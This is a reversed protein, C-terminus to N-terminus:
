KNKDNSLCTWYIKHIRGKTSCDYGNPRYKPSSPPKKMDEESGGTGFFVMGSYDGSSYAYCGKTNYDGVFDTGGGGQKLGLRNGADKCAQQSYPECDGKLFFTSEHLGDNRLLFVDAWYFWIDLVVFWKWLLIM